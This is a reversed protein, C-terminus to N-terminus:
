RSGDGGDLTAAWRNFTTVRLRWRGNFKFGGPIRGSRLDREVTKPARQLIRAIDRPLLFQPQHPSRNAPPM